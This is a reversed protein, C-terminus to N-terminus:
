DHRVEAKSARSPVAPHPGWYRDGTEVYRFVMAAVQRAEALLESMPRDKWIADKLEDVEELLIAYFEHRGWQDRGHKAYAHDLESAIADMMQQRASAGPSPPPEPPTGSTGRIRALTAIADLAHTLAAVTNTCVLSDGFVRVLETVAELEERLVEQAREPTMNEGM